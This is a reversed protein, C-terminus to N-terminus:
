VVSKRDLYEAVKLANDSSRDIRLGMTELGLIQLYANHPSLCAGLNRYVEKRLKKELADSGYKVYLDKLKPVKHWKSSDYIIIAGGVSTAGGSISKTTSIIEIDVNYLNSDFIYSTMLTNDVILIIGNESAIESIKGIDFVILHPNTINELFIGRTNSDINREIEENNTLDVYRTEIGLSKFTQEFLSFTNGFLYKTTIINDGTSCISIITNAIAAMGSALCITTKANSFYAIRRELEAITPNSIRSYAHAGIKGEFAEATEEASSFEFAVCDYIPTRLAGFMNGTLKQNALDGHVLKSNYGKM